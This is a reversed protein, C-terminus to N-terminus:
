LKSWYEFDGRAADVVQTVLRHGWQSDPRVLKIKLSNLPPTVAQLDWATFCVLLDILIKGWTGTNWVPDDVHRGFFDPIKRNGVKIEPRGLFHTIRAREDTPYRFASAERERRSARCNWVCRKMSDCKVSRVSQRCRHHSYICGIKKQSGSDLTRQFWRKGINVNIQCCVHLGVHQKVTNHM